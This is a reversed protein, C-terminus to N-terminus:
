LSRVTRIGISYIATVGGRREARIVLFGVIDEPWELGQGVM